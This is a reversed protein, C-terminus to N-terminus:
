SARNYIGNQQLLEDLKRNYRAVLRPDNCKLRRASYTTMNPLKAGLMSMKSIEIWLPRHDGVLQGHELYGCQEVNITSSVFIEDISEKGSNHTAPLNPGHRDLNAPILQRDKFGKLVEDKRIDENFDGAIILQEGNEM